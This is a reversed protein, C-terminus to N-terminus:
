RNDTWFGLTVGAAVISDIQLQATAGTISQVPLGEVILTGGGVTVKQRTWPDVHIEAPAGGVTVTVLGNCRSLQVMGGAATIATGNDFQCDVANFTGFDQTGNNSFFCRRALVDPKEGAGVSQFVQVSCDTLECAGNVPMNVTQLQVSRFASEAYPVVVGDAFTLDPFHTLPGQNFGDPGEFDLGIFSWNFDLSLAPIVEASYDHPVCFFTGGALARATVARLLTSWPRQISGDQDAPAVITGPDIFFVSSLPQNGAGGPTEVEILPGAEAKRIQETGM